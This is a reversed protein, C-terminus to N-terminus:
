RALYVLFRFLANSQKNLSHLITILCTESKYTRPTFYIPLYKNINLNSM